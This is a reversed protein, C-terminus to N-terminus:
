GDTRDFAHGFGDDDGGGARGIPRALLPESTSTGGRRGRRARDDVASSSWPARLEVALRDLVHDHAAALRGALRAVVDGADDGDQGPM